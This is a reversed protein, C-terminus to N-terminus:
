IRSDVAYSDSELVSHWPRLDKAAPLGLMERPKRTIHAAFNSPAHYAALRRSAPSPMYSQSVNLEQEIATAFAHADHVDCTAGLGFARVAVHPWASTSSLVPRDLSSANLIISAVGYQARYPACVLDMACIAAAIERETAFHNRVLLRDQKVLSTYQTAILREVPASLRGVLLLRDCPGLRSVAFARLLLDIGKREDLQGVCGVIRGDDPLTLERRADAKNLAISPEVPHPVLEFRSALVPATHTLRDIAAFSLLKIRETPARALLRRSASSRIRRLIGDEDYAFRCAHVITDIVPHIHRPGLSPLVRWATTAQALLDGSPIFVYDPRHREIAARLSALRGAANRVGSGPLSPTRFDLEAGLEDIFGFDKNDRFSRASEPLVLTIQAGPLSALARGAHRLYEPEHGRLEGAIM